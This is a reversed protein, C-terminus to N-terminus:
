HILGQPYVCATVSLRISRYHVIFLPHLFQLVDGCDPRVGNVSKLCKFFLIGRFNVDFFINPHVKSDGTINLQMIVHKTIASLM